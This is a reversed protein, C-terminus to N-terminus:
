YVTDSNLFKISMKKWTHFKKSAIEYFSNFVLFLFLCLSGVLNGQLVEPSFHKLNCLLHQSLSFCNEMHWNNVSGSIGAIRPLEREMGKAM